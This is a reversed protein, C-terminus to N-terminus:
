IIFGYRMWRQRNAAAFEPSYEDGVLQDEIFMTNDFLRDIFANIPDYRQWPTYDRM